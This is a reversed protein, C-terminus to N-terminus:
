PRRLIRGAIKGTHGRADIVAVGNVIVNEIGSPYQSPEEFTAKDIVTDPDFVVLDAKMGPRVLGRDWMRLRWAPFGTMKYVAQELTLVREERVYKGLVRPFTGFTRPHPKGSSLPGDVARASSDSGIMVLPHAMVTKVDEECMGFRAYGVDLEEEILLNLAAQAEPIGWARAIEPIRKGEFGKNKETKVSTILMKSWGDSEDHARSLVSRLREYDQPSKLRELLARSGGEQAWSPIIATLGTASAIYPYQDCSVDVGSQRAEEIMALSRNVLGWAKEGSAKHHSIQVSVGAQRGIAIAEEVSELLGAGENRMHTAYIGHYPAMARALEVLEATDGFRSPPYILGSSFGFAGAELAERLHAKMEEMEDATPPRNEYGVVAARITGHGVLPAINVAVGNAELLSLYEAFTRWKIEGGEDTTAQVSASRSRETVPAASSGCQGTVETTVGQRLKSEGRKDAFWCTDSHSHSDIFGPSLVLGCGDIISKANGDVCREVDAIIGDKVAVEGYFWPAGTGDVVRVNRVILDYM